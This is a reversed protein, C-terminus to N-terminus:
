LRPAVVSRACLMHADRSYKPIFKICIAVEADGDTLTRFFILRKSIGGDGDLHEKYKFVITSNDDLSTISTPYPFITPHSLNSGLEVDPSLM